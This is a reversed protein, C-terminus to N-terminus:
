VFHTEGRYLSNGEFTSILPTFTSCVFLRHRRPGPGAMHGVKSIMSDRKLTGLTGSCNLIRILLFSILFRLLFSAQRKVRAEGFGWAEVQPERPADRGGDRMCARTALSGAPFGVSEFNPPAAPKSM